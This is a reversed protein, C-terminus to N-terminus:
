SLLRRRIDRMTTEDLPWERGLSRSLHAERPLRALRDQLVAASRMSFGAMWAMTVLEEPQKRRIIEAVKEVELGTRQALLNLAEEFRRDAIRVLFSAELEVPAMIPTWEAEKRDLVVQQSAQHSLRSRLANRLDNPLDAREALIMAFDDAIFAALTRLIKEPLERRVAIAEQWAPQERSRDVIDSLIENTLEAETNMLLAHIANADGTSSLREAVKAGIRPRRAVSTRTFAAAPFAILDLLDQDELIPSLRIIPDAVEFETDRALALIVERSTQPLDAIAKALAARVSAVADKVLYALTNEVIQSLRATVTPAVGQLLERMRHAIAERVAVQDDRALIRLIHPPSSPNRVVEQRVRPSPDTGLFFLLEPPLEQRAALALREEETGYRAIRKEESVVMAAKESANDPPSKGESKREQEAM